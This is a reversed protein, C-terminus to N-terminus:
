KSHKPFYRCWFNPDKFKPIDVDPVGCMKLVKYVGKNEELNTM